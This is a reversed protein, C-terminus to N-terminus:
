HPKWLLLLTIALTACYLIFPFEDPLNRAFTFVTLTPFVRNLTWAKYVFLQTLLHALLTLRVIGTVWFTKYM